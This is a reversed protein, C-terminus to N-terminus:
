LGRQLVVKVNLIQVHIVHIKRKQGSLHDCDHGWDGRVHICDHVLTCGHVLIKVVYDHAGEPRFHLCRVMIM